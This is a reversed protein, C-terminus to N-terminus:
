GGVFGVSGVSGVSGLSPSSSVLLSYHLIWYSKAVPNKSVQTHFNGSHAFKTDGRAFQIDGHAIEASGRAFILKSSALNRKLVLCGERLLLKWNNYRWGISILFM